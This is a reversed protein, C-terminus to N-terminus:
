KIDEKLYKKYDKKRTKKSKEKKKGFKDPNKLVSRKFEIESDKTGVLMSFLFM